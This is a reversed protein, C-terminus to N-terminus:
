SKTDGRDPSDRTGQGCCTGQRAACRMIKGDHYLYDHVTNVQRLVQLQEVLEFLGATRQAPLQADGGRVEALADSSVLSSRECLHPM